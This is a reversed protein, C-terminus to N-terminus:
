YYQSWVNYPSELAFSHGFTSIFESVSFGLELLKYGYIKFDMFEAKGNKKYTPSVIAM